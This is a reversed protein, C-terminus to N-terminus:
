ANLSRPSARFVTLPSYSSPVVTSAHSDQFAARFVFHFLLGVILGEKLAFEGFGFLAYGFKFASLEDASFAAKTFVACFYFGIKLSVWM